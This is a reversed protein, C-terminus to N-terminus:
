CEQGDRPEPFEYLPQQRTASTTTPERAFGFEPEALADPTEFANSPPPPPLDYRPGPGPTSTLVSSYSHPTPSLFMAYPKISDYDQQRPVPNGPEYLPNPQLGLAVPVELPHRTPPQRGRRWRWVVILVLVLVLLGVVVGGAVAGANSTGGTSAAESSTYCRTDTSSTCAAKVGLACQTCATCNRDTSATCPM